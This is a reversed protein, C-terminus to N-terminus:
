ELTCQGGREGWHPPYLYILLYIIVAGFIPETAGFVGVDFIGGLALNSLAELSKQSRAFLLLTM